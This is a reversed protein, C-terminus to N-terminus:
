KGTNEIKLWEPHERVGEAERIPWTARREDSYVGIKKQDIPKFGLKLAPSDEKLRFDDHDPDMFLPDAVISNRDPGFKQWAEWSSCESVRDLSISDIETWGTKSGCSLYIAFANMRKDYKEDSPSPVRFIGEQFEPTKSNGSVRVLPLWLGKNDCTVSVTSPGDTEHNKMRFRIRYFQGEELKFHDSRVVANRIYKGEPNWASWIRITGPASIEAKADPLSKQFWYWNAPFHKESVKSFDLNSIKANLNELIKGYGTQGTEIPAKGGNWIINRDIENYKFNFLNWKIYKSSPQNPYYFINNYIHDNAMSTGDPLFTDKPHVNMGRLTRWEPCQVAKEYNRVMDAFHRKMMRGNPDNSWGSLQFQNQGGDILINNWIRNDRANHLHVTGITCRQVINDYVDLGGSTDDLYIGWTFMYFQYIGNKHGFGISDRVWNGRITSGHNYIWSGAGNSYIAGADESEMNLHRLDNYEVMIKAGTFSISGRPIDHAKNRSIRIGCGGISFAGSGKFFLGTHHIYNNEASCGSEELTWFDGCSNFQVGGSGTRYIDCGYVSCNMSRYLSVAFDRTFGLDHLVSRELTCNKASHMSVGSGLSATLTLGSLVVNSAGDILVISSVAAATISGRNLDEPSEGNPPILSIKKNKADYHWEGPVDMDEKMGLACYRDMPRAAYRMKQKLTITRAAPDFNTINNVDNSWNHRPFILIMGESPNKWNRVDKAKQVITYPSEGEVEKYMNFPEGDVYAWGGSYPHDPEFNPYRALTLRQDNMYLERLVPLKPFASLDATLIGDSQCEWNTIPFGGILTPKEKQWGTIVLPVSETGSDEKRIVLSRDLYYRGERLYLITKEPSGKKREARIAALGRQITKFPAEISGTQDDKGDPAVFFIAESGSCALFPVILFFFVFGWRVISM